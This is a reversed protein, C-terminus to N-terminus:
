DRERVIYTVLIGEREESPTAPIVDIHFTVGKQDVGILRLVNDESEPSVLTEAM